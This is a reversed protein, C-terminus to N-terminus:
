FLEFASDEVIEANGLLKVKKYCKNCLEIIHMKDTIIFDKMVREIEALKESPIEGNFVSYGIRYLGFNKLQETVQNRTKDDTIDYVIVVKKM